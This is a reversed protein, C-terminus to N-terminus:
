KVEPRANRRREMKEWSLLRRNQLRVIAERDNLNVPWLFVPPLHDPCKLLARVEFEEDWLETFNKFNRVLNRRM